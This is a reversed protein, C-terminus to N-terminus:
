KFHISFANKSTTIAKTLSKKYFRLGTSPEIIFDPDVSCPPWIGYHPIPLIAHSTGRPSTKTTLLNFEPRGLINGGSRGLHSTQHKRKSEASKLSPVFKAIQSNGLFRAEEPYLVLHPCKDKIVIIALGTGINYNFVGPSTFGAKRRLGSDAPIHGVSWENGDFNVIFDSDYLGARLWYDENVHYTYDGGYYDVNYPSGPAPKWKQVRAFNRFGEGTMLNPNAM